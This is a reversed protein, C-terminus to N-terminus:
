CGNQSCSAALIHLHSAFHSPVRPVIHYSGNSISTDVAKPDSKISAVVDLWHPNSEVDTAFEDTGQPISDGENRDTIYFGYDHMSRIYPALAVPNIALLKAEGSGDLWLIQGYRPIATAGTCTKNGLGDSATAPYVPNGVQECQVAIGVGHTMRGALLDEPRVIGSLLSIKSATGGYGTGDASLPGSGGWGINLQRTSLPFTCASGYYGPGFQGHSQYSACTLWSDTETGTAADIFANHFDTASGATTGNPVHVTTASCKGWPELCAVSYLPDSAHGTSVVTGAAGSTTFQLRGIDGITMATVMAASQPDLPPTSSLKRAM